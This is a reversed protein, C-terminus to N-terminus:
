HLIKAVKAPASSYMSSYSFLSGGNVDCIEYRHTAHTLLRRIFWPQKLQSWTYRVVTDHYLWGLIDYERVQYMSTDDLTMIRTMLSDWNPREHIWWYNVNHVNGTRMYKYKTDMWEVGRKKEQWFLSREMQIKQIKRYLGRSFTEYNSLKM